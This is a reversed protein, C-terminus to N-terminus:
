LKEVATKEVELLAKYRRIYANFGEVAAPDPQLTSGSVGAFVRGSLFDELREGGM